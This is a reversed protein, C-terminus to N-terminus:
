AAPLSFRVAAKEIAKALKEDLASLGGVSHTSLVIDVRNWVNTWEPHHDIKEAYLAAEAMFSFAERFNAFKFSKGIAERAHILSWGPLAALMETAESKTLRTNTMAIDKALCAWHKVHFLAAM